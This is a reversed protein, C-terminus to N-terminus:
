KLAERLSKRAADEAPPPPLARNLGGYIGSIVPRLYENADLNVSDRLMVDYLILANGVILAGQDGRLEKIPLGQLARTLDAPTVNTSSLLTGIATRALEFKPADEPHKALWVTAGTYAAVEAVVGVRDPTVRGGGSTTKCGTFVALCLAALILSHLKKM